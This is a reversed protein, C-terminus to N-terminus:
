FDLSYIEEELKKDFENQNIENPNILNSKSQQDSVEKLDINNNNKNEVFLKWVNMYTKRDYYIQNVRDTNIINNNFM